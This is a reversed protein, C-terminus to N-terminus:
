TCTKEAREATEATFLGKKVEFEISGRLGSFDCLEELHQQATRLRLEKGAEV